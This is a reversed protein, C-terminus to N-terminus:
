GRRGNKSFPVLDARRTFILDDRIGGEWGGTVVAKEILQGDELDISAETSGHTRTSGENMGQRIDSEM